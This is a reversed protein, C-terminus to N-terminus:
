RAPLNLMGRLEHAARRPDSVHVTTIGLSAAGGLNWEFDDLFLARDAAVGLRELTLRFIAPNPKRVGEVASDVVVDVLADADITHRWEAWDPVMNSVIATRYGAARADAAAAVMEPVPRLAAFMENPGPPAPFSTLGVARLQPEIAAAFGALTLEGREARHWPHDDDGTLDGLAIPLFQELTLGAAEMRALMIPTPSTSLVGSFDFLVADWRRSSEESRM